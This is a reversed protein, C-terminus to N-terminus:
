DAARFHYLNSRLFQLAIHYSVLVILLFPHSQDSQEITMGVLYEGTQLILIFADHEGLRDGLSLDDLRHERFSLLSIIELKDVLTAVLNGDFSQALLEIGLIPVIGLEYGANQAITHRNGM